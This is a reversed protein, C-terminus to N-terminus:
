VCQVWRLLTSIAQADSHWACQPRVRARVDLANASSPRVSHCLTSRSSVSFPVVVRTVIALFAALPLLVSLSCSVLSFSVYVMSM